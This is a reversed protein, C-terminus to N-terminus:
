DQEELDDFADNVNDPKYGKRILFNKIEFDEMDKRKKTILNSASQIEYITLDERNKDFYDEILNKDLGKAQLKFKIEAMSMNKLVMFNNVAKGIYEEDDIYKADKLYEIVDELMEENFEKQFKTRVENETRKKYMIYKLIKTKAKDFDEPSYM